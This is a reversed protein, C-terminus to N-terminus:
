CKSFLAFISHGKTGESDMIKQGNSIVLELSPDNFSDRAKSMVYHVKAIDERINM